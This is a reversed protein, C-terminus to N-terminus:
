RLRPQARSLPRKTPSTGISRRSAEASSVRKALERLFRRGDRGAGIELYSSTLNGVGAPAADGDDVGLTTEVPEDRWISEQVDQLLLM